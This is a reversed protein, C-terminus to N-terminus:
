GALGALKAADVPGCEDMTKVSPRSGRSLATCTGDDSGLAPAVVSDFVGDNRAFGRVRRDVPIWGALGALKSADVPSCEDTTKVLPSFESNNTDAWTLFRDPDLANDM